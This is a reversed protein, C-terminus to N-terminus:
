CVAYIQQTKLLIWFANPIDETERAGSHDYLYDVMMLMAARINNPLEGGNKACIDDLACNLHQEVFEEAANGYIELLSDDDTFSSDMRLQYKIEDLDIYRM